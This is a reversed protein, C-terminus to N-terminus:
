HAGTATDGVPNLRLVVDDIQVGGRDVVLNQYSRQGDVTESEVGDVDRVFQRRLYTTLEGATVMRDLDTDAEGGLGTRLFHSLYGGASFKFAVASTLDEESSFLGMVGPKSVVNRAFGGSFCSDLVLLSLRTRLSGFMEAMDADTIRGDRLSIFETRGDPETASPSDPDTQGGHGSFFFLFMDEPGAEAAVRRFAAQVGEVTAEADTLTISAPNLVGERRLAESLKLADEDTYSLNSAAGAYDSIGVMVAFVRPGDPVAAQRATGRSPQVSLRYSGTEGAAFSTVSVTYIGDEALVTDLRSDTGQGGAADDNDIRVGLPSTLVAFADFASSTLEVAIRQGRRGTFRIRDVYEGSDFTQDGAQLVGSVTQGISMDATEAAAQVGPTAPAAPQYGAGDAVSLSYAGTEGGQFSTASIVYRGDTPLTVLLRSNVGGDESDDNFRSFGDPGSIQVYPDFESSDLRLELQQGRRGEFAFDDVFEGTPLTRAGLGLRGERTEGLRIASGAIMPTQPRASTAGDGAEVALQYAGSEGPRYSTASVTVAGDAPATFTIRSANSGRVSADDDNDERLDGPGRVMLYPDFDSSNLRVTYSQGSRVNLTWGDAFEGSPLTGDGSALRGAVESGPSLVGNSTAPTARTPQGRRSNLNSLQAGSRPRTPQTLSTSRVPRTAGTPAATAGEGDLSLTYRGSEGVEFSTATILYQGDAPLTATLGANPRGEEQDDNFTSFGGPGSLMLYSDFADSSLNLRIRQGASGTFSYVDRFEGSDLAGDGQELAGSVTAGLAIPRPAASGAGAQSAAGNSVALSASIGAVEGATLNTSGSDLSLRYDGTEGAQYSTATIVYEGTAPLTISMGATTAEGNLDDNDASFGNPGTVLLYADFDDSSLRLHIRELATGDFRYVDRYEGGGLLGDGARLSGNVPVNAEIRQQGQLAVAALPQALLTLATTASLFTKLM